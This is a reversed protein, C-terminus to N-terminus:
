PESREQSPILPSTRQARGSCPLWFTQLWEQEAALAESRSRFPGLCPGGVPALDSWWQGQADPEVHSARRIFLLGLLSLDLAETYLCRITGQPDILLLM